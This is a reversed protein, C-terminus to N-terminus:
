PDCDRHPISFSAHCPVAAAAFPFRSLSTKSASLDGVCGVCTGWRPAEGSNCDSCLRESQSNHDGVCGAAGVGGASSATGAGALGAGAGFSRASKLRGEGFFAGFGAGASIVGRGASTPLPSPQM